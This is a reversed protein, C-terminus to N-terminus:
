WVSGVNQISVSTIAVSRWNTFIYFRKGRYAGQPATYSRPPLSLWCDGLRYPTPSLGSNISQVPVRHEPVNMCVFCFVAFSLRTSCTHICPSQLIQKQRAKSKKNIRTPTTTSQNQLCYKLENMLWIAKCNYVWKHGKSAAASAERGTKKRKEARCHM